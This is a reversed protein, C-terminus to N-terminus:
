SDTIYGKVESVGICTYPDVPNLKFSNDIKNFQAYNPIKTLVVEISNNEDDTFSPLSFIFEKTL